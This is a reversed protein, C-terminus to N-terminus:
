SRWQYRIDNFCETMNPLVCCKSTGSVQFFLTAVFVIWGYGGDPMSPGLEPQTSVIGDIALEETRTPREMGGGADM